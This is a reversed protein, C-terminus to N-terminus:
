CCIHISPLLSIEVIKTQTVNRHDHHYSEHYIESYKMNVSIEHYMKMICTMLNILFSSRVRYWYLKAQRGWHNHILIKFLCSFSQYVSQWNSGLNLMDHFGDDSIMFCRHVHHFHLVTLFVISLATIMTIDYVKSVHDTVLMVLVTCFIFTSTIM